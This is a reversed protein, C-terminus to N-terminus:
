EKIRQRVLALLLATIAMSILISVFGEFGISLFLSGERRDGYTPLFIIIGILVTQITSEIIRKTKQAETMHQNENKGKEKLNEALTFCLNTALAYAVIRFIEFQTYNYKDTLLYYRLAYLGIVRISLWLAITGAVILISWSLAYPADLKEFFPKIDKPRKGKFLLFLILAFITFLLSGLGEYDM